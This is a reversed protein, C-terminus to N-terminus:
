SWKRLTLVQVNLFLFVGSTLLFFAIDRSDLLGRSFSEFHFTLSFSNVFSAFLPPMYQTLDTLLTMAMLVVASGLFAAAQTKSISSLFLGLAVASAGLLVAGTYEAFIVGGDFHGLPLVTLPVPITLALMGLVLAFCAFFKGLVLEWESFPMTFLLEDTKLKKEEAWSKMTLVPIVVIFAFPLGLFFSRLSATDLAFFHTFFYFRISVFLLFFVTIVYLAPSYVWSLLERRALVLSRSLPKFFAAASLAFARLKGPLQPEKSMRKKNPPKKSM